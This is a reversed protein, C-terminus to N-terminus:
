LGAPFLEVNSQQSLDLIPGSSEALSLVFPQIASFGQGIAQVAISYEGAPVNEAEIITNGSIGFYGNPNDHLTYTASSGGPVSLTAVLDGIAM